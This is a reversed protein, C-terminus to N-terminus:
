SLLNGDNIATKCRVGIGSNPIKSFCPEVEDPFRIKDQSIQRMMNQITSEEEDNTGM